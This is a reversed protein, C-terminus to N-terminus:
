QERFSSFQTMQHFIDGDYLDFNGRFVGDLTPPFHWKCTSIDVLYVKKLQQFIGGLVHEPSQRLLWSHMVSM